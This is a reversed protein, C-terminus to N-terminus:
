DSTSCRGRASPNVRSGVRDVNGSGHRRRRLVRECPISFGHAVLAGLLWSLAVAPLYWLFGSSAQAGCSRYVAVVAVVVFMHGLYIEYSLRGM